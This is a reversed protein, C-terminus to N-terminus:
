GDLQAWAFLLIGLVALFILPVKSIKLARDEVGEKATSVAAIACPVYILPYAMSGILFSRAVIVLVASENGTSEGALSMVGALFVAPYALLPLGGILLFKTRLQMREELMEEARESLLARSSALWLRVVDEPSLPM